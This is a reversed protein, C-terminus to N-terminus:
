KGNNVNWKHILFTHRKKGCKRKTETTKRKGIKTRLVNRKTVHPNVTVIWKEIDQRMMQKISNESWLRNWQKTKMKTIDMNKKGEKAKKRLRFREKTYKRVSKVNWITQVRCKEWRQINKKRERKMETPTCLSHGYQKYFLNWCVCRTAVNSIIEM